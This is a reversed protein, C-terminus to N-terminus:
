HIRRIDIRAVPNRWDYTEPALDAIGHIGSSIHVFGEGGAEPSDGVGMCVPGPINACIEDNPESGADYANAFVTKKFSPLAVNNVAMFTDNTPILMAVMSLRRFKRPQSTIRFSVSEGPGLLMGPNGSIDNVTNPMSKLFEALPATNGGEALLALEPSAEAGAEFFAIRSKHTAALIPTFTQGKTINTVTVEFLEDGSAHVTTVAILAMGLTTLLKKM